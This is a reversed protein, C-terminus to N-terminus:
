ENIEREIPHISIPPKSHHVCSNDSEHHLNSIVERGARHLRQARAWEQRSRDLNGDAMAQRASQFAKQAQALLHDAFEQETLRPRRLDLLLALIDAKRQLLFSVEDLTLAGHPADVHLSNGDPKLRVGKEMIALLPAYLDDLTM